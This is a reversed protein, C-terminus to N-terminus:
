DIKVGGRGFFPILKSRAPSILFWVRNKSRFRMGWFKEVYQDRLRWGEIMYDVGTIWCVIIM